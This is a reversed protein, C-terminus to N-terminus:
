SLIKKKLFESKVQKGCFILRQSDPNVGFRKEVLKKLDRVMTTRSTPITVSKGTALSRVQVYM